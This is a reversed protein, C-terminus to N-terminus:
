VVEAEEPKGRRRFLLPVVFIVALWLVLDAALFGVNVSWIDVPGSFTSVVHIGWTLPLGYRLHVYDPWNYLIGWTMAVVMAASAILRYASTWLGAM